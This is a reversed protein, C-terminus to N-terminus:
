FNDEESERDNSEWRVGNENETELYMCKYFPYEEIAKYYKCSAGGCGIERCTTPKM